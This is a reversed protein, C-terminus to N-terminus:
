SCDIVTRLVDSNKKTVTNIPSCFVDFPLDKEEFPGVMTRFKLEQDVYHQVDREFLSAGQLNWRSNKPYPTATFSMDWGYLFGKNIEDAYFYGELAWKWTDVPFSPNELSEKLGDM